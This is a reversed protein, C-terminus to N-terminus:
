GEQTTARDMIYMGSIATGTKIASEAGGGSFTISDLISRVNRTQMIASRVWADSRDTREGTVIARFHYPQGGYENWEEIKVTSYVSELYRKMAEATGYIPYYIPATKIMQRKQEIDASRDYVCNYEWAMEDLRWEPMSDVDTLIKLAEGMREDMYRFLVMMAEAIANGNRDNLIFRPFLKEKVINM